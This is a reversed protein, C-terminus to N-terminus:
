GKMDPFILTSEGRPLNSAEFPIVGSFEFWNSPVASQYFPQLIHINYYAYVYYIQHLYLTCSYDNVFVSMSKSSVEM